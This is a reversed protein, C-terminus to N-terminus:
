CTYHILFHRRSRLLEAIADVQEQAEEDGDLAIIDAACRAAEEASLDAERRFGVVCAGVGFLKYGHTQEFHRALAYLEPPQLHDSFYGNPFAAVLDCAAGVPALQLFIDRDLARDPNRNLLLFDPTGYDITFERDVEHIFTEGPSGDPNIEEWEEDQQEARIYGRLRRHLHDYTLSEAARRLNALRVSFRAQPTRLDGYADREPAGEPFLRGLDLDEEDDLGHSLCAHSSTYTAQNLDDLTALVQRDPVTRSAAEVIAVLADISPVADLRCGDCLAFGGRQAHLQEPPAIAAPDFRPTM